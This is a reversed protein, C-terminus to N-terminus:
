RASPQTRRNGTQSEFSLWLLVYMTFVYLVVIIELSVEVHRGEQKPLMMWGTNMQKDDAIITKKDSYNSARLLM